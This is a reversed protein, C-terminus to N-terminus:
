LLGQRFREFRTVDLLGRRAADQAAQVYNEVVQIDARTEEIFRALRRARRRSRVDRIYIAAVRGPFLEAISRYIYPDKEGSDGILVFRMEPFTRLIHAISSHKHGRYGEPRKQYPIGFDRLLIPGAPLDNLLLFEELLDYLNWPGNSVYFVPNLPQSAAGYSLAQYFAAAASFSRRLAASKMFTHYLMKLKLLSTVDTQLVTDDIDSIIGFQAEPPPILLHARAQFDLPRGPIAHVILEAPQWSHRAYDPALPQPLDAELQFYGEEDTQTRLVNEGLRVSLEAGSIEQSNFRKYTQILARWRSNINRAIIRRDKLVRGKLFIRDPRGYGRYAAITVPWDDSFGMLRKGQQWIQSLARRIARLFRFLAPKVKQPSSLTKKWSQGPGPLKLAVPWIFRTFGLSLVVFVM